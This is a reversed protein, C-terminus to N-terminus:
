PGNPTEFLKAVSVELVDAIKQLNKVSPNAVQREVHSIYTRHLGAGAGLKEQSLDKALRLAEVNKALLELADLEKAKKDM